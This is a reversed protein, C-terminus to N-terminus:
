NSADAHRSPNQVNAVVATMGAPVVTKNTVTSNAHATTPKPPATIASPVENRIQLLIAIALAIVFVTMRPKIPLNSRNM